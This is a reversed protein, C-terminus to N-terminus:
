WPNQYCKDMNRRWRLYIDTLNLGKLKELNDIATLTDAKIQEIKEIRKKSAEEQTSVWEDVGQGNVTTKSGGFNVSVVGGSVDGVGTSANAGFYASLGKWQGAWMDSWAQAIASGINSFFNKICM